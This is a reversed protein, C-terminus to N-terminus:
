VLVRLESIAGEGLGRDPQPRIDQVDRNLRDASLQLRPVHPADNWRTAEHIDTDAQMGLRCALLWGNAQALEV